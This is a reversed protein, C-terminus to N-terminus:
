PREERQQRFILSRPNKREEGGQLKSWDELNGQNM